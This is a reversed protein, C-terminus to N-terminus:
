VEALAVEELEEISETEIALPPASNELQKGKQPTGQGKPKLVLASAYLGAVILLLAKVGILFTITQLMGGVLAGMLNAGLALDKDPSRAFSDIFVIGSFFMPLTTLAGVITAKAAFPMFAFTSLDVFYLAICTGILGVGALGVPIKSIKAAALNALLIMILIGSVIVANVLWTNGLVVSAKSINQVELLLFAAGLLFFHWQSARWIKARGRNKLRLKGYGALALLLIALLVYLMPISPKELYIYPWDDTAIRTAGTLELPADAQWQNIKSALRPNAALQNQVARSDGAVFVVGGWGL